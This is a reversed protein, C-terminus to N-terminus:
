ISDSFLHIREFSIQIYKIEAAATITMLSEDNVVIVTTNYFLIELNWHWVTALDFVIYLHRTLELVYNKM